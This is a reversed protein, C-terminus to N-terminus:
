VAKYPSMETLTRECPGRREQRGLTFSGLPARKSARHAGVVKYETPDVHVWSWSAIMRKQPSAGLLRAWERHPMLAMATNPDGGGRIM